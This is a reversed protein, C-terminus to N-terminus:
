KDPTKAGMNEKASARGIRNAFPTATIGHLIISIFVTMSICALFEEENPFDFDAM